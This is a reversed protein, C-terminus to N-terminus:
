YHNQKGRIHNLFYMTYFAAKHAVLNWVKKPMIKNRLSIIFLCKPLWFIHFQMGGLILFFIYNLFSFVHSSVEFGKASLCSNQDVDIMNPFFSVYEFNDTIWVSKIKTIMKITFQEQLKQNINEIGTLGLM